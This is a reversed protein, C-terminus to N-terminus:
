LRARAIAAAMASRCTNGTCVFLLKMRSGDRFGVLAVPRAGDDEDFPDAVLDGELRKCGAGAARETRVTDLDHGAAARLPDAEGDLPEAGGADLERAQAVRRLLPLELARELAGAEAGAECACVHLPETEEHANRVELALQNMGEAGGRDLLDGSRLSVEAREPRQLLLGRPAPPGAPPPGRGEQPAPPPALVRAARPHEQPGRPARH